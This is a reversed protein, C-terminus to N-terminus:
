PEAIIIRGNAYVTQAPNVGDNITAGIYYAGEELDTPLAATTATAPLDAEILTYGNDLSRDTDYFVDIRGVAGPENVEGAFRITFSAGQFVGVDTEGPATIAITPPVNSLEQEISVTPGLVTVVREFDGNELTVAVSFGSDTASLGLVYEAPNYPGTDLVFTGANGEGVALQEGFEDPPDLPGLIFLRWQVDGEPDGVDFSVFVGDGQAV